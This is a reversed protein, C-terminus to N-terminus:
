HATTAAHIHVCVMYVADETVEVGAERLAYAECVPCGPEYEPCPEGWVQEMTPKKM